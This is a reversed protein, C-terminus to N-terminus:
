AVEHAAIAKQTCASIGPVTVGLEFISHVLTRINHAVVMLLLENTQAEVTKSRLTDTFVRKMMSFTSEANSRRHYHPLFEDQKFNYLHFMKSWLPSKADDKLGKRFPIYAEAGIAAIAALNSRGIYAKDASVEAIDFTKAGDEILPALENYDNRDRDTVTAAAIVNTKTGVLAHLKLYNRSYQEHGYKASYHRYFCQTGFGTSDVAFESEVSKLPAASAAILNHLTPTINANEIVKLVSNFHWARSVLGNSQAERLDTMFRRASAGSYVKYCASFLAEAVPVPQRGMGREPEPASACLDRLLHCFLEKEATQAANYAPWNQPYTVRVARTETVTTEGDPTTVTERSLYFEVAYGHKCTARRLEYDPCSCHLGEDERTVTYRGVLTQSPVIWGGDKSQIRLTAAIELGKQQRTRRSRPLFPTSYFLTAALPTTRSAPRM